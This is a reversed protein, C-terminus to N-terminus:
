PTQNSALEAGIKNNWLTTVIKIGANRIEDSGNALILVNCRKTTSDEVSQDKLYIKKSTSESNKAMITIIPDLGISIGVAGQPKIRVDMSRHAQILSDYRGGAAIVVRSSKRELVCQFLIGEEYFKANVSGLPTVYAKRQLGFHSLLRFVEILHQMANSLKSRLEVSGSTLLTNLRSIAKDPQDRFDFERLDDVVTDPLGFKRLEARVKSWTYHHFGLRSLIEKVAPQQVLPVRSFELVADLIDQHNLHFCTSTLSAFLPLDSIAEDMVKIAEADNLAHEERTWDDTIDFDVEESVRPPGGDFADRYANGICFTRKVESGNRALQRAHPLTLDYPLQLLNGSADLVQFLNTNTYYDSRPFITQRRAEEAGHRRFVAQLTQKAIGRLRLRNADENLGSSRADWALAKVRSTNIADHAFLASMMKQHYPSRPDSLGSLAKRMTEDEIKLPLMDSRLLETSTPRESPKYSILCSILKGQAAKEGQPQFASPLEHQKERVRQLAKIREMATKFPECMEYFIIGLSYM